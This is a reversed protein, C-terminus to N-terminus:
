PASGKKPKITIRVRSPEEAEDQEQGSIQAGSRSHAKLRGHHSDYVIRAASMRDAGQGYTAHGLLVILDYNAFYELRDAKASHYQESDDPLQRMTAPDGLSVLKVFEDDANLYIRITDGTIRLTGQVIVANGYYFSVREHEGAEAGDAEISLPQDRDSSLAATQAALLMGLASCVLRVAFHPHRLLSSSFLQM